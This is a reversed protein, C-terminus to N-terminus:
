AARRVRWAACSSTSLVTMRGVAVIARGDGANTPVVAARKGAGAAGRKKTRRELTIVFAPPAHEDSDIRARVRFGHVKYADRLTKILPHNAQKKM